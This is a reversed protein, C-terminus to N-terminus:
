APSEDPYAARGSGQRQQGRAASARRRGGGRGRLGRFSRLRGSGCRWRRGGGGGRCRRLGGRARRGRWRRGRRCGRRGGWRGGAARTLLHEIPAGVAAVEGLLFALHDVAEVLLRLPGLDVVLVLVVVRGGGLLEGRRQGGLLADGVHHDQGVDPPLLEPQVLRELRVVAIERSGLDVLVVVDVREDFFAGPLALQHPHREG